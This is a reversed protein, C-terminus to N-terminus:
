PGDTTDCDHAENGQPEALSTPSESTGCVGAFIAASALSPLALKLKM